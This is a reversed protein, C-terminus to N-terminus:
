FFQSTVIWNSTIPSSKIKAIHLLSEFHCHRFFVYFYFLIAIYLCCLLKKGESIFTMHCSLRMFDAIAWTRDQTEGLWMTWSPESVYGCESWFTLLFFFPYANCWKSVCSVPWFKPMQHCKATVSVLFHLGWISHGSKPVLFLKQWLAARM